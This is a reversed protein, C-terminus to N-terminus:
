ISFFKIWESVTDQPGHAYMCKESPKSCCGKSYFTCQKTKWIPNESLDHQFKCNIGYKCNLNDCIVTKFRSNSQRQKCTKIYRKTKNEMIRLYISHVNHTEKPLRKIQSEILLLKEECEKVKPFYLYLEQIQLEISNFLQKLSELHQYDQELVFEQKTINTQEVIRKQVHLITNNLEIIVGSIKISLLVENSFLEDFQTIHSLYSNSNRLTREVNEKERKLSFFTPEETKSNHFDM